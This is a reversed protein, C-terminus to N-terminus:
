FYRAQLTLVNKVYAQTDNYVGKTRVANLGQYYSALAIRSDGDTQNLLYRLYAASMDINHDARAPNLPKRLLDRNVFTVTDPMLQGVGKAGTSSVVHNQWGSEQWAMAQLLDSPVGHRKAASDFSQKLAVRQPNAKLEAPLPGGPSPKPASGNFAAKAKASTQTTVKAPATAAKQKNSPVILQSGAIIRHENKIGNVAVLGAVSVNHRAAIVSLSEGNRVTITIASDVPTKNTKVQTSQAPKQTLPKAEATGETSHLFAIAGAAAVAGAIYRGRRLVTMPMPTRMLSTIDTITSKSIPARM